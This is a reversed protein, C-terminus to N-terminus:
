VGQFPENNLASKEFLGKCDPRRVMINFEYNGARILGKLRCHMMLDYAHEFDRADAAKMKKGSSVYERAINALTRMEDKLELFFMNDVRNLWSEMVLMNQFQKVTSIKRSQEFIYYMPAAQKIITEPYTLM